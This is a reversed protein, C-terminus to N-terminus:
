QVLAVSKTLLGTKLGTPDYKIRAGGTFSAQKAVIGTYGSVSTGNTYTVSTTPFYLSGTLAMSAGGAFSANIASIISRDQYFLVGTYTGTTPASLTVNAGNNILVSAYTANTGTLYFTVGSGTIAGSGAFTIGGGKIIYNGASFIVISTNYVSIGGCYTGPYLTTTGAPPTYM